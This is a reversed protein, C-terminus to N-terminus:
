PLIRRISDLMKLVCFLKNTEREDRVTDMRIVRFRVSPDDPLPEGSVAARESICADWVLGIFMTGAPLGHYPGPGAVGTSSVCIRSGTKKQLGAAMALAVEPSEATKAAILEAPVGLEETKARESYTVIGRDFVSSIGPVKVLTSAFLGGTCSECSSIELNNAILKKGVVMYLEEDDLSYVNDGIIDMVKATMEDIAAFAEEETARKSAIRLSCEGVKAYTALTPDTQGDILPLLLTELKPEGIGYTRLIRYRIVESSFSELYPKVSLSWMAKMENPPGPMCAIIRGNESLAFGPATGNSNPFVTARSPMMAQKYTNETMSWGRSAYLGELWRVSEEHRVLTDHLVEAATEKTLDDETPGLGGTTIILDCSRFIDTMLDALRGENDGVTHHYLVDFGMNNLERSLFVTNTNTIQGFLIETGITM